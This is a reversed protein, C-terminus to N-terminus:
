DNRPIAESCCRFGDDIWSDDTVPHLHRSFCSQGYEISHWATGGRIVGKNQQEVQDVWESVNGNLDFVGYISKCGPHSGAPVIFEAAGPEVGDTNCRFPIKEAGYSYPLNLKGSCAFEWEDETCLRKGRSQCLKKAKVFSVKVMPLAFKKNPYEFVDMCFPEIKRDAGKKRINLGDDTLVWTFQVKHGPHVAMGEPCKFRENIYKVDSGYATPVTESIKLSGNRQNKEPLNRKCSFSPFALTFITLGLFLVFSLNFRPIM